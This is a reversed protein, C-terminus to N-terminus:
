KHPFIFGKSEIFDYYIKSFAENNAEPYRVDTFVQALTEKGNESVFHKSDERAEKESYCKDIDLSSFDNYEERHLIFGTPIRDTPPVNLAIDTPYGIALTAIPVVMEPLKLIGAIQSANYTTTGLYCCGLGYIEAITNFQQCLCVTDLMASIFSQFNRYGPKANRCNCWKEFRNFDACFTLLVPASVSAPQNFHCKALAERKEKDRTVIISYLQMNGTTPAHVAMDTISFILEDDVNKDSFDRVTKRTSFYNNM